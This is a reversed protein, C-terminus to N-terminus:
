RILGGTRGNRRVRGMGEGERREGRKEKGDEERGGREM